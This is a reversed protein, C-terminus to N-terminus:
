LGRTMSTEKGRNLRLLRFAECRAVLGHAIEPNSAWHAHVYSGLVSGRGYGEVLTQRNRRKHLRYRGTYAEPVDFLESYRFQHGRFRLGARGLLTPEQTEVEVYGLAQLRDAMKCRGPILGVMAFTDEGMILHNTLYMLGGCEAYIPGAQAAFSRISEKMSENGALDGAYVEPYGGGIYLGDVEPIREDHLPSFPVLTVGLQELRRLNDEYYFSFAEDMAIGIACSLGRRNMSSGAGDLAPVGEAVRVLSALDLRKRGEQPWFSFSSASVDSSRATVLGLHRDPFSHEPAKLFGGFVQIDGLAETLLKLHGESGLRNLIVGAVEVGPDFRRFGEVLARVSRAMGSADVVLVVPAHLWKAIQAASGDESRPGSSDFLGMVGEILAVDSGEAGALVTDLVADRGMLWGDLNHCAQGTIRKHYTPDLYDPGCKFSSVKLGQEQLAGALALMVTTKGVGSHTGAIVLRGPYRQGRAAM